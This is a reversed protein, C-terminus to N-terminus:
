RIVSTIRIFAEHTEKLESLMVIISFVPMPSEAVCILISNDNNDEWLEFGDRTSSLQYGLVTLYARITSLKTEKLM